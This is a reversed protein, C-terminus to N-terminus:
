EKTFGTKMTLDSTDQCYLLFMHNILLGWKRRYDYYCMQVILYAKSIKNRFSIFLLGKLRM